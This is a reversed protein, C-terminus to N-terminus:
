VLVVVIASLSDVHSDGINLGVGNPVARAVIKEDDDVGIVPDEADALASNGAAFQRHGARNLM